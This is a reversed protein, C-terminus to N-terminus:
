KEETFNYEISAKKDKVSHWHKWHKLAEGFTARIKDAQKVSTAKIIIEGKINVKIM